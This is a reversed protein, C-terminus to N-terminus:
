SARSGNKLSPLWESGGGRSRLVRIAPNQSDGCRSVELQLSVPWAERMPRESILFVATQNKEAVLQLRRLDTESIRFSGSRALIVAGFVQSRIVQHAAWLADKANECDVFLVRDLAIGFQPFACPYITSAEEIWAIRPAIGSQPAANEALLRLIVETKGAGSVGSVEVLAGKPFATPITSSLPTPPYVM